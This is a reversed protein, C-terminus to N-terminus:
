FDADRSIFCSVVIVFFAVFFVLFVELKMQVLNPAVFWAMCRVSSCLVILM